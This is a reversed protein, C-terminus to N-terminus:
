LQQLNSIMMTASRRNGATRTARAARDAPTRPRARRRPRGSGPCCRAPPPRRRPSRRRPISRPPPSARRPCPWRCRGAVQELQAGPDVGVCHALWRLQDDDGGDAAVGVGAGVSHRDDGDGRQTRSVVGEALTAVPRAVRLCSDVTDSMGGGGGSSEPQDEPGGGGGLSGDVCLGRATVPQAMIPVPSRASSALGPARSPARRISQTM